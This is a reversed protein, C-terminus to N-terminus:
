KVKEEEVEEAMCEFDCNPCWYNDEYIWDTPFDDPANMKAWVSSQQEIEESGCTSCKWKM